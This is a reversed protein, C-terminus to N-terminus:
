FISLLRSTKDLIEQSIGKGKVHSILQKRIVEVDDIREAVEHQKEPPTTEKEQNFKSLLEDTRRVLNMYEEIGNEVTQDIFSM